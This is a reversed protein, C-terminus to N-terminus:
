EEYVLDDIICAGRKCNETGKSVNWRRWLAISVSRSPKVVLMSECVPPKTIVLVSQIV